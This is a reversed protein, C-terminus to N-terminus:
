FHFCQTFVSQRDNLSRVLRGEEEEEEQKVETVLIINIYANIQPSLPNM